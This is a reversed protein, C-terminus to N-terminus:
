SHSEDKEQDGDGDEEGDQRQEGRRQDACHELGNDEWEEQRGGTLPSGQLEEGGLAASGPVRMGEM